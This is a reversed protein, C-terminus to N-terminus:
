RAHAGGLRRNLDDRRSRMRYGCTSSRESERTADRVKRLQDRSPAAAYPRSWHDLQSAPLRAAHPVPRVVPVGFDRARARGRDGPDPGRASLQPLQLSTSSSRKWGPGRLSSVAARAENDYLPIAADGFMDVRGRVGRILEARSSRSTTSTPRSTSGIRIRTASTPRSGASSACCTRWARPDRDARRPSGKTRAPPQADGHGFLGASVVEPLADTPELGWHGLADRTSSMFGVSEDEPTTQAKGVVFEGSRDVIFTDTM